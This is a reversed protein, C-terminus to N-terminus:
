TITSLLLVSSSNANRPTNIKKRTEKIRKQKRDFIPNHVVKCYSKFVHPHLIEIIKMNKWVVRPDSGGLPIYHYIVCITSNVWPVRGTAEHKPNLPDYSATNQWWAEEICLFVPATRCEVPQEWRKRDEQRTTSLSRRPHSRYRHLTGGMPVRIQWPRGAQTM